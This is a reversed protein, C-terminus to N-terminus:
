KGADEFGVLIVAAGPTGTRGSGSAFDFTRQEAIGTARTLVIFWKSSCSTERRHSSNSFSRVARAGYRRGKFLM